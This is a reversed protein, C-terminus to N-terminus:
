SKLHNGLKQIMLVAIYIITKLKTKYLSLLYYRNSITLYDSIFSDASHLTKTIFIQQNVVLLLQQHATQSLQLKRM